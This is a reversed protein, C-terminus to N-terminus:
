RLLRCGWDQGPDVRLIQNGDLEFSIFDRQWDVTFTHFQDNFTEGNKLCIDQTTKEYGNLPWFPGWHLTAGYCQVGIDHGNKKLNLNGRSEM